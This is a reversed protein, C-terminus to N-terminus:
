RGTVEFGVASRHSEVAVYLNAPDREGPRHYPLTYLRCSSHSLARGEGTQTGILVAM